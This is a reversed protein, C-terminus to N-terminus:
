KSGSTTQKILQDCYVSAGAALIGQTIATFLALAIDKGGSIDSSAFVWLSSLLIGAFGLLMPIFRNAVKSARIGLGAIYLVPILVVLEPKIYDTLNM